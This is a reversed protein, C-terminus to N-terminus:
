DGIKFWKAIQKLRESVSDIDKVMKNLKKSFEELKKMKVEITTMKDVTQGVNQTSRSSIEVMHNFVEKTQELISSVNKTTNVLNEIRQTIIKFSESFDEKTKSLANFSEKSNEYVANLSGLNETYNEMDKMLKKSIENIEVSLKMIEDAVVAFGKGAEGARAAEIAANLALLNTQNAVNQIKSIEETVQNFQRITQNIYSNFKEITELSNKISEDFERVFKQNEDIKEEAELIEDVLNELTTVVQNIVDKANDTSSKMEDFDDLIISTNNSFVKVAESFDQSTKQLINNLEELNDVESVLQTSSTLLKKAFDKFTESLKKLSDLIIKFEGSAKDSEINVFEGESLKEIVTKSHELSKLLQKTIVFILVISIALIILALLVSKQVIAKNDIKLSINVDPKELEPIVFPKPKPFNFSTDLKEFPIAVELIGIEQGLYTFSGKKAFYSKGLIEIINNNSQSLSQGTLRKGDKGVKTTILAKNNVYLTIESNSISKINDLFNNDLKNVFVVFGNITNGLVPHMVPVVAISYLSDIYPFIFTRYFVSKSNLIEKFVKSLEENYPPKKYFSINASSSLVNAYEVVFKNDIEAYLKSKIKPKTEDITWLGAYEFNYKEIFPFLLSKRETISLNKENAADVVEKLSAAIRAGTLLQENEQKILNIVTQFTFNAQTSLTKLYIEDFKKQIRQEQEKVTKELDNTYEESQAIIESQFKQLYDEYNKVVNKNINNKVEDQLTDLQSSVTSINVYTVLFMPITVLFIAFLLIKTRFSM